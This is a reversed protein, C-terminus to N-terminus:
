AHTSHGDSTRASLDLQPGTQTELPEVYLTRVLVIIGSLMPVAVLLGIFGFLIAMLLQFLLTIAPPLKVAGKMVLPSILNSELQQVVIYLLAVWLATLPSVILAVAVAPAAAIFPGFIPVFELLGALVALVFAGPIRLAM